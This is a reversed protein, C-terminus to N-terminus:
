VCVRYAAGNEVQSAKTLAYPKKIRILNPAPCSTCMSNKRLTVSPAFTCAPSTTARLSTRRRVLADALLAVTFM